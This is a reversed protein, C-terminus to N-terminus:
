KSKSEEREKTVDVKVGDKYIIAYRSIYHHFIDNKVELAEEITDCSTIYEGDNFEVTYKAM